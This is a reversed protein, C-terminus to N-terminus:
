GGNHAVAPCAHHVRREQRHELFRGRGRHVVVIVVGCAVSLCDLESSGFQVVQVARTVNRTEVARLLKRPVGLTVHVVDGAAAVYGNFAAGGIVAYVAIITVEDGTM